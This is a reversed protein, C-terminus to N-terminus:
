YQGVMGRRRMTQEARAFAWRGLPYTLFTFLVLVAYELRLDFLPRAGLAQARLIDIAYTTPLALAVPQLVGPLLTV